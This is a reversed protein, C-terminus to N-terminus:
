LEAKPVVEQRRRGKRSASPESKGHPPRERKSTRCRSTVRLRDVRCVFVIYIYIYTYIHIYVYIYIYTCM